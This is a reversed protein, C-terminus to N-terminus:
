RPAGQGDFRPLEVLGPYDRMVEQIALEQDRSFDVVLKPQKKVWEFLDSTDDEIETRVEEPIVCRGDAILAELLKWFSPFSKPPLLPGM